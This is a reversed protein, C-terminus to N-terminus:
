QPSYTGCSCPVHGPSTPCLRRQHWRHRPKPHQLRHHRHRLCLHYRQWRQRGQPQPNRASPAAQATRIQGVEEGSLRPRRQQTSAEVSIGAARVSTTTALGAASSTPLVFPPEASAAAFGERLQRLSRLGTGKQVVSMHTQHMRRRQATRRSCGPSVSSRRRWLECLHPVKAVPSVSSRRRGPSVSSRRVSQKVAPATRPTGKLRCRKHWHPQQLKMTLVAGSDAAQVSTMTVSAADISMPLAFPLGVIAAASNVLLLLQSSSSTGKPVALM